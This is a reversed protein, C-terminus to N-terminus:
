RRRAASATQNLARFTGVIIHKRSRKRLRTLSLFSWRAALLKVTVTPAADAAGTQIFDSYDSLETAAAAECHNPKVSQILVFFFFFPNRNLSKCEPVQVIVFLNQTLSQFRIWQWM